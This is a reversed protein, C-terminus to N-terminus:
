RTTFEMVVGQGYVTGDGTGRPLTVDRGITEHRASDIGRTPNRNETNIIGLDTYFHILIAECHAAGSAAESKKVEGLVLLLSLM